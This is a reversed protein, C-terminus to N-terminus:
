RTLQLRLENRLNVQEESDERDKKKAKLQQKIEL